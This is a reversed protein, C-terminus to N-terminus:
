KGSRIEKLTKPKVDKRYRILKKPPLFNNLKSPITIIEPATNNEGNNGEINNVENEIEQIEKLYESITTTANKAIMQVVLKDKDKESMKYM